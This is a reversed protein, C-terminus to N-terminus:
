SSEELGEDSEPVVAGAVVLVVLAVFVLPAVVEGLVFVAVLEFPMFLVLAVVPVLPVVWVLPPPAVLLLVDVVSVSVSVLLLV